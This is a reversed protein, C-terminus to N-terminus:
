GLGVAIAKAADQMSTLYRRAAEDETMASGFYRMTIAVVVQKGEMVPVALGTLPEGRLHATTAYGRKRIGAVLQEVARGDRALANSRAKSARLMRLIAEREVDPCFALYARGLASVLMPLRQGLYDQDATFPSEARTSLRVIMADGDLTAVGVPWKHQATLAYIFPRAAEVAKDAHRFGGSLRLVREGLSYGARRSVRRVYGGAILTDLLRVLTPKPLQTTEHLLGLPMQAQQNLAELVQLARLIPQIEAAKESM